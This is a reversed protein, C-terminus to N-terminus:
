WSFNEYKLWNYMDLTIPLKIDYLLKRLKRQNIFILKYKSLCLIINYFEVFCRIFISVQLHLLHRCLVGLWLLLWMILWVILMVNIGLVAVALLHLIEKELYMVLHLKCHKAYRFIVYKHFLKSKNKIEFREYLHGTSCSSELKSLM